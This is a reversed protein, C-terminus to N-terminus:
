DIAELIAVIGGMVAVIGVGQMWLARYMDARLRSEVGALEAKLMDRTVKLADHTVLPSTAEGVVEVVSEAAQEGLGADRLKRVGAQTDFTPATM